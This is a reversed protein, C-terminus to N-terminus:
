AGAGVTELREYPSWSEDPLDTHPHGLLLQDLTKDDTAVHREYRRFQLFATRAVCSVFPNFRGRKPDFPKRPNPCDVGPGLSRWILVQVQQAVDAFDQDVNCYRRAVTGRVGELLDGLMLPDTPNAAWLDYLQNLDIAM